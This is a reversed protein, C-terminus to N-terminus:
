SEMLKTFNMLGEQLLAGWLIISGGQVEYNPKAPKCAEGKKRWIYRHENHGFLEIETKDSWLVHKWFFLTNTGTQM